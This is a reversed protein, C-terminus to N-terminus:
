DFLRRLWSRLTPNPSPLASKAAQRLDDPLTGILAWTQEGVTWVETDVDPGDVLGAPAVGDLRLVAVTFLGDGYVAMEGGTVEYSGALALRGLRSPLTGTLTDYTREEVEATIAFPISAEMPVEIPEFEVLDVLCLVAGDTDLLERTVIVGTADDVWLRARAVRTDDAVSLVDTRRGRHDVTEVESVSYPGVAPAAGAVTVTQIPGTRPGTSVFGDGLVSPQGLPDSVVTLSAFRTVDVANDVTGGPTRCMTTRRASYLVDSGATLIRGLETSSDVTKASAAALVIRAEDLDVTAVPTTATGVVGVVLAAVAAVAVAVASMRRWRGEVVRGAAPDLEDPLDLLPLSRVAARAEALDDLEARCVGCSELHQSVWATEADTVEGDLVASLLEPRHTM